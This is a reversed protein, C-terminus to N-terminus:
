RQPEWGGDPTKRWGMRWFIGQMVAIEQDKINGRDKLREIEAEAQKLETELEAIRKECYQIREAQTARRDQPTVGLTTMLMQLGKILATILATGGGVWAMFQEPTMTILHTMTTM